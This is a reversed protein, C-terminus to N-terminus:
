QQICLVQDRFIFNPNSIDNLQVLTQINVGTRVSIRSLTDGARVTYTEACEDDHAPAATEVAEESSDSTEETAADASADAEGESEAEENSLPILVADIVHIVGNTTEIDTTVVNADNVTVTDGISVVFTSGGVTEVSEGDLGVVDEAMVKGAVVHYLLIDTLAGSPDELLSDLTGEPLAAFAEDTPAFVTFPGEGQLTEVLGAAEVAAVLTTFDDAAIATEVIDAAVEGEDTATEETAAEETAEDGGTDAAPAEGESDAVADGEEAASAASAAEEVVAEGEETAAEEETATEEAAPESEETAEEVPTSPILVQDIVHIVGNSTELNMVLFGAENLLLRNTEVTLTTTGGNVMALSGGIGNVVDSATISGSVVHYLLIDSLAGEPDELLSELTGEPLAAFAEDTPAFVTFPGEGQLTEVLGAAELATVLTEFGETAIATEVIDPTDDQAAPAAIAQGSFLQVLGILALALVIRLSLRYM